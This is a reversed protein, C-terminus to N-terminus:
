IDKVDTARAQMYADDMSAFMDSFNDSTAAVAYEANVSQTKIINEISENYDDDEIMMMHFVFIQAHTEGVESLAKEYIESLQSIAQEKAKAVRNLEKEVDEIKERRVSTDQRVFLSAEGIAIAGYVGTAHFKRM